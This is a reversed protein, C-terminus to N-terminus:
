AVLGMSSFILNDIAADNHGKDSTSKFVLTYSTGIKGYFNIDVKESKGRDLTATTKTWLVVNNKDKPRVEIIFKDTANSDDNSNSENSLNNFRIIFSDLRLARNSNVNFTVQPDIMTVGESEEQKFQLSKNNANGSDSSNDQALVLNANPAWKLNIGVDKYNPTALLDSCYTDANTADSEFYLTVEKIVEYGNFDNHWEPSGKIVGFYVMWNLASKSILSLTIYVREVTENKDDNDGLMDMTCCVGFSSFLAGMIYIIYSVIEPPKVGSKKESTKITNNFAHIIHYWIIGHLVFGILLNNMVAARDNRNKELYIGTRQLLVNLLIITVLSKIDILGSLNSILWLMIGSSIAYEGWQIEPISKNMAVTTFHNLASLASPIPLLNKLDYSGIQNIDLMSPNTIPWNYNNEKALLAVMTASQLMHLTGVTGHLIRNTKSLQGQM